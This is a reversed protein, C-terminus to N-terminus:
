HLFVQNIAGHDCHMMPLEGYQKIVEINQRQANHTLRSQLLVLAAELGETLVGPKYQSEDLRSFTRMSAVIQRIRQTGSRMSMLVNPMDAKLFDLDIEASLTEIAQFKDCEPRDCMLEEYLSVLSLLDATYGQLHTLNGHIFSTPNNIEHAIGASLQGLSLMKENHVLLTQTKQLKALAAASRDREDRYRAQIAILQHLTQTYVSVSFLVFLAGFFFVVGTLLPLWVFTQSAIM